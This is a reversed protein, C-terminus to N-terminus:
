ALKWFAPAKLKKNYKIKSISMVILSDGEECYKEWLTNYLKKVDKKTHTEIMYVSQQIYVAELMNEVYYQIKDYNDNNALNYAIIYKHEM